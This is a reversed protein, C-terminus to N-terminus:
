SREASPPAGTLYKDARIPQTYSGTVPVQAIMPGVMHRNRVPGAPLSGKPPIPEPALGHSQMYRLRFCCQQKAPSKFHLTPRGLLVEPGKNRVVHATAVKGSLGAHCVHIGLFGM